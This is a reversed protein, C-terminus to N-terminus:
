DFLTCLYNSNAIKALQPDIFVANFLNESVHIDELACFLVRLKSNLFKFSYRILQAIRKRNDAIVLVQFGPSNFIENESNIM